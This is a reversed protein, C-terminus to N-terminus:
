QDSPITAYLHPQGSTEHVWLGRSRPWLGFFTSSRYPHRSPRNTAGQLRTAQSRLGFNTTSRM